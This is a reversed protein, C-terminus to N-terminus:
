YRGHDRDDNPHPRQQDPPRGVSALFQDIRQATFRLLQERFAQPRHIALRYFTHVLQIDTSM